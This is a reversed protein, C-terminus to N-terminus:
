WATITDCFSATPTDPPVGTIGCINTWVYSNSSFPALSRCCLGTPQTPTCQAVAVSVLALLTLATSCIM